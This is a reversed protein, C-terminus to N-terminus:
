RKEVTMVIAYLNDGDSLLPYNKNKRLLEKSEKFREEIDLNLENTVKFDLPDLVQIAGIAEGARRMYLKGRCYAWTMNGEKRSRVSLYVRGALTGAMGTGIKYM